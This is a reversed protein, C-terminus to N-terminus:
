RATLSESPHQDDYDAIEARLDDLQAAIGAAQLDKCGVDGATGTNISAFLEELEIAKHRTQRRQQDNTLMAM